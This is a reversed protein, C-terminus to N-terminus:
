LAYQSDSASMAAQFWLNHSDKRRRGRPTVTTFKPEYIELNEFTDVQEVIIEDPLPRKSYGYIELTAIFADKVNKLAEDFSFGYTLFEPLERCTVTIAGDSELTLVLTIKFTIKM